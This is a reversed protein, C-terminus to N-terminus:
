VKQQERQRGKSTELTNVRLLAWKPVMKTEKMIELVRETELALSEVLLPVKM